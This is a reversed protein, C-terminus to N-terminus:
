GNAILEALLLIRDKYHAVATAASGHHPLPSLLLQYVTIGSKPQGFLRLALAELARQTSSSIHACANRITRWDDLESTVSGLHPEFPYGQDFFLSVIKRVNQHNAFDFYKQTGVLMSVARERTAPFVYKTPHGGHITTDGSMFASIATELFHEWARFMNLFCASTIQERDLEGFLYSGGPDQRHCSIILSDCQAVDGQMKTLALALTM